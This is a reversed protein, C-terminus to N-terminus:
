MARVYTRRCCSLMTREQRVEVLEVSHALVIGAGIRGYGWLNLLVRSVPKLISIDDENGIDGDRKVDVSAEKGTGRRRERVVGLLHIPTRDHM